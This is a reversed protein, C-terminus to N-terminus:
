SPAEPEIMSPVEMAENVKFSWRTDTSASGLGRKKPDNKVMNSQGVMMMAPTSRADLSAQAMVM